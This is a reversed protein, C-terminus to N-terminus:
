DLLGTKHQPATLDAFGVHFCLCAFHTHTHLLSYVSSYVVNM